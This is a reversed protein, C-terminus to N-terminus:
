GVKLAAAMVYFQRLMNGEAHEEALALVEDRVARARAPDERDLRALVPMLPSFTAELARLVHGPSLASVMLFGRGFRLGRVREGLQQRIM